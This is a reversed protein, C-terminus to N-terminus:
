QDISILFSSSFLCNLTVSRWAGAVSHPWTRQTAPGLEGLAFERHASKEPTSDDVLSYEGSLMPANIRNSAFIVGFYIEGMSTDVIFQWLM